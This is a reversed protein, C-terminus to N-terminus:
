VIRWYIIANSMPNLIDFDAYCAKLIYGYKCLVTARQACSHAMMINSDVSTFRNQANIPMIWALTRWCRGHIMRRVSFLSNHSAMVFLIFFFFFSIPEIQSVYLKLTALKPKRVRLISNEIFKTGLFLSRIIKRFPILQPTKISKSKSGELPFNWITQCKEIKFPRQFSRFNILIFMKAKWSCLVDCKKAIFLHLGPWSLNKKEEFSVDNYIM